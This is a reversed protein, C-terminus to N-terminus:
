FAPKLAFAGESLAAAPAGNRAAFHLRFTGRVYRTAPNWETVTIEAPQSLDLQQVPGTPQTNRGADYTYLQFTTEAPGPRYSGVGRFRTLQWQLAHVVLGPARENQEDASTFILSSDTEFHVDVPPYRGGGFISALVSGANHAVVPLGNLKYAVTNSNHVPIQPLAPEVEESTLTCAALASLAPLLAARRLGIFVLNRKM